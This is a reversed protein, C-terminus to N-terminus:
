FKNVSFPQHKYRKVRRSIFDLLEIIVAGSSPKQRSRLAFFDAKVKTDLAKAKGGLAKVKAKAKTKYRSAKNIDSLLAAVYLTPRGENM